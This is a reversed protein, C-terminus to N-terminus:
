LQTILKDEFEKIMIVKCSIVEHTAAIQMNILVEEVLLSEASLKLNLILVMLIGVFESSIEEYREFFGIFAHYYHSEKYAHTKKIEKM